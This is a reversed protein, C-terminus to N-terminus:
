TVTQRKSYGSSRRLDFASYDVSSNLVPPVLLSASIAEQQQKGAM